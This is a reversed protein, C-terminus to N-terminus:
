AVEAVEEEDDSSSSSGEGEEEDSSSSSRNDSGRKRKEPPPPPPSSTPHKERSKQSKKLMSEMAATMYPQPAGERERKCASKTRLVYSARQQAHSSMGKLVRARGVREYEEEEDCCEELDELEEELAFLMPDGAPASQLSRQVSYLQRRLITGAEAFAGREAAARAAAIEEDAALRVREREVEVSVQPDTVEAPRQVVADDGAVDAARGTAVDRYTCRMRVLQTADEAAGATPVDV